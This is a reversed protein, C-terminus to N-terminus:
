HYKSGNNIRRKEECIRFWSNHGVDYGILYGIFVSCFIVLFLGFM